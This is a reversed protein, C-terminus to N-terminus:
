RRGGECRLCPIDDAIWGTDSCARCKPVGAEAMLEGVTRNHDFMGYLYADTLMDALTAPSAEPYARLISEIRSQVLADLAQGLLEQDPAPKTTYDM